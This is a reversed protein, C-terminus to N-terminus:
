ELYRDLVLQYIGQEKILAIGQDFMDRHKQSNFGAAYERKDFIPHITFNQHYRGGVHTKVFYRFINLDIIIVETRHSFLMEVQQTQDAIERYDTSLSISANYDDGLFKKANQFAIVSKGSLETISEISLNDDSLSVAVNQYTIYPKSLFISPHQYDTPLTAIGGANFRKFASISRGLPLHTFNVKHNVSIFAERILDLQLGTGNEEVIFPPKPLGAVININCPSDNVNIAKQSSGTVGESASIFSVSLSLFVFFLFRPKGFLVKV